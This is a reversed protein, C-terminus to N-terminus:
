VPYGRQYCVSGLSNLGDYATRWKVKSKEKWSIISDLIEQLIAIGTKLPGEASSMYPLELRLPVVGLFPFCMKMYNICKTM